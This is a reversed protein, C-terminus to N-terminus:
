FSLPYRWELVRRWPNCSLNWLYQSKWGRIYGATIINSSTCMGSDRQLCILYIEKSNQASEILQSWLCVAHLSCIQLTCFKFESFWWLARFQDAFNNTNNLVYAVSLAVCFSAVLAVRLPCFPSSAYLPPYARVITSPYLSRIYIQARSLRSM